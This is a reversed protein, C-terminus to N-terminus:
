VDFPYDVERLVEEVPGGVLLLGPGRLRQRYSKSRNRALVKAIRVM